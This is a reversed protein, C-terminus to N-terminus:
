KVGRSCACGGSLHLGIVRQGVPAGESIAFRSIATSTIGPDSAALTLAEQISKDKMDALWKGYGCQTPKEPKDKRMADLLEATSPM